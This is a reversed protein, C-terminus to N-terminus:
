SGTGEVRQYFECLFEMEIRVTITTNSTENMDKAWVHAYFVNSPNGGIGSAITDDGIEVGADRTPSYTNSVVKMNNSGQKDVIIDHNTNNNELLTGYTTANLTPVNSTTIGVIFPGSDNAETDTVQAPIFTAKIRSGYVRYKLYVPSFQDFWMPQHGTGTLDPDYLSNMRFTWETTNALTATLTIVDSYKLKTRIRDPFGFDSGLRTIAGARSLFSKPTSKKVKRVQYTPTRRKVSRRQSVPRKYVPM